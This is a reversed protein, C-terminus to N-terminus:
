KWQESVERESAVKLRCILKRIEVIERAHSHFFLFCSDFSFLLFILASFVFGYLRSFNLAYNFGFFFLKRLVCLYIKSFHCFFLSLFVLWGVLVCVRTLSRVIRFFFDMGIAKDRKIKEKLEMQNPNWVKM